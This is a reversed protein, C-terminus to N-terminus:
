NHPSSHINHTPLGDCEQRPCVARMFHAHATHAWAHQHPRKGHVHNAIDYRIIDQVVDSIEPVEVQRVPIQGTELALRLEAIYGESPLAGATQAYHEAEMQELEEDNKAETM